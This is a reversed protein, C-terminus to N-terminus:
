ELMDQNNRLFATGIRSVYGKIRNEEPILARFREQLRDDESTQQWQGEVRLYMEITVDEIEQPTNEIVEIGAMDYDSTNVYYDMERKFIERFTLIRGTAKDMLKKPISLACSNRPIGGIPILNSTRVM